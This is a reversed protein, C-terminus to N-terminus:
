SWRGIFDLQGMSVKDFNLAIPQGWMAILAIRGKGGAATKAYRAVDIALQTGEQSDACDAVFDAGGKSLDLIEELPNDEYVFPYDAGVKRGVELRKLDSRLGVLAVSRAGRIKAFQEALIGIPGPGIVVVFDNARINNREQLCHLMGGTVPEVLAAADLHMDPPCVHVVCEPILMYNAYSGDLDIGLWGGPAEIDSVIKDGVKVNKIEIGVEVVIGSYEHGITVPPTYFHTDNQVNLDSGCVGAAWVKM